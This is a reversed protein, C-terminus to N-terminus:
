AGIVLDLPEVALAEGAALEGHQDEVCFQLWDRVASRVMTRAEDVTAGQTLIEPLEPISAMVWGDGADHYVVTLRLTESM